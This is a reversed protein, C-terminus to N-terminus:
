PKQARFAVLRAVPKNGKAIVEGMPLQQSHQGSSLRDGAPNGGKTMM